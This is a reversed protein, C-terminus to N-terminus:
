RVAYDERRAGAAVKAALWRPPRGRGTWTNEGDRYKVAIKAKSRKTYPRKAKYAGKGNKSVPSLTVKPEQSPLGLDAFVQTLKAQFEAQLDRKIQAASAQAAEYKDAKAAEIKAELRSLEKFSLNTLNSPISTDRM